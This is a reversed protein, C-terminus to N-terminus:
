QIYTYLHLVIYRITGKANGNIVGEREKEIYVQIYSYKKSSHPHGQITYKPSLQNYMSKCPFFELQWHKTFHM